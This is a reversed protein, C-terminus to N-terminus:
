PNNKLGLTQKLKQAENRAQLYKQLNAVAQDVRNAQKYIDKALGDLDCAFIHNENNRLTAFAGQTTDALEVSPPAILEIVQRQSPSAEAKQARLQSLLENMDNVHLRVKELYEDDSQWDYLFPDRLLARLQGANDEVHIAESQIRQLLFSTNNPSGVNNFAVPRASPQGAKPSALLAAPAVCLTAVVLAGKCVFNIRM